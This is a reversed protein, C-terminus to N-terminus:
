SINIDGVPVSEVEAISHDKEEKLDMGICGNIAVSLVLLLIINFIRLTSRMSCAGISIIRM